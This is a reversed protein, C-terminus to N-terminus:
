LPGYIVFHVLFYMRNKNIICEAFNSSRQTVMDVEM